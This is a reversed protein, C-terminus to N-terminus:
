ASIAKPKQGPNPHRLLKYYSEGSERNAWTARIHATLDPLDKAVTTRWLEKKYPFVRLVNDVDFVRATGEAQILAVPKDHGLRMGLEFLVNPNHETLDCTCLDADIIENVITSHIMETGQRNATKVEFGAERGAPIILTNLVEDFFGISYQSTKEVFPMIVFCVLGTKTKPEGLVIVDSVSVELPSASGHDGSGAAAGTALGAYECNQRFLASFEEHFAVPLKFKSQLTNGLYQMEPLKGGKYHELVQKFIEVNLFAAQRAKLEEEANGSYVLQRGLATLTVQGTPKAGETLGFKQSSLLYYLFGVGKASIDLVGAIEEAPWPEGGNKEKIARPIAVAKELAVRPYPRIESTKKPSRGKRKSRRPKFNKPKAAASKDPVEAQDDTNEM